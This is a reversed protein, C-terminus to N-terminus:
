SKRKIGALTQYIIQRLLENNMKTKLSQYDFYEIQNKKLNILVFTYESLGKGGWGLSYIYYGLCLPSCLLSGGLALAKVKLRNDNKTNPINRIYVLGLHEAGTERTIEDAYQSYFLLASDEYMLKETLFSYLQSNINISKLIEEDSGKIDMISVNLGCLDSNSKIFTETKISGLESAMLDESVKTETSRLYEYVPNFMIVKEIGLAVGFEQARQEMDEKKRSDEKADDAKKGQEEALSFSKKLTALTQEKLGFFALRWYNKEISVDEQKKKKKKIKEAKTEEKNPADEEKAKPDPAIENKELEFNQLNLEEDKVIKKVIDNSLKQIFVDEPYSERLRWALSATAVAQERAPMKSLMYYVPQSNGEISKWGSTTAEDDGDGNNKDSFSEDAGTTNYLGFMAMLMIKRPFLKETYIQGLLWGSYLAKAYKGSSLYLLCVEYRATKRVLEFREKGLIYKEGTTKSLDAAKSLINAKRKRINPHTSYSDDKEEKASVNTVKSPDLKYKKPIKFSENEMWNYNFEIEDFPLYSYLLVDFVGELASTSYKSEKYLEFGWNDADEENEKSYRYYEEVRKDLSMRKYNGKGNKIKQKEIYGELGHNKVFHGIEHSLVFALEAENNIQALLGTNIFIMGQQTAFANVADSKIVYFRLKNQIEPKDKLIIRAVENVYNTMLDGFLVRGSFLLDNMQFNSNLSFEREQKRRKRTTEHNQRIEELQKQHKESAFQKFDEPVQGSCLTPHFQEFDQASLMWVGSCLICFLFKICLRVIAFRDMFTMKDFYYKYLRVKAM